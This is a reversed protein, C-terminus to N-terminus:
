LGGCAPMVFVRDVSLAPLRAHTAIVVTRHQASGALASLFAQENEVDLGATPEDLLWVCAGSLMVRALCLRRAQGASLTWGTEGTWTDLGEPLSRVYEGLLAQDLARWLQAETAHPNGILLNTRVTGLFVPADQTLLAVHRHWHEVPIDQADIDGYRMRGAVPDLLRMMLNLLTSKGSGSAGVIAVREGAAIDLSLNQIIAHTSDYSANVRQLSITAPRIDSSADGVAAAKSDTAKGDTAKGDTAKGDLMAVIRESAAQAGGLRAANRMVPITLEFFGLTALVLGALMPGGLAGSQWAQIGFWAVALVSWGAVIQLVTTGMATMRAQALRAAAGQALVEEFRAQATASAGLATLDNLGAVTDLMTHRATRTAAHVRRGWVYAGRALVWPAIVGAVVGGAGFAVAAAHSHPWWVAGLVAGAVLAICLPVVISLFVADLADIDAVLLSVGDGERLHGLRAAPQRMLGAFAQTRLDALLRLTTAHGVVKEAYRSGIRVFSFVRILSSPVFLNFALMSGALAAGSLFWGSVGLLALGAAATTAALALVLMVRRWRARYLGMLLRAAMM